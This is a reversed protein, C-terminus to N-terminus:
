AKMAKEMQARDVEFGCFKLVDGFVDQPRMLIKEYSVLIAPVGCADIFATQAGLAHITNMLGDEDSFKESISHRLSVAVPDRYMVILLPNRFLKILKHPLFAYLSPLKFGWVQHQLDRKAILYSLQDSAWNPVANLFEVDEATAHHFSEGMYVGIERLM